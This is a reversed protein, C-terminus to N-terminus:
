SNARATDIVTRRRKHRQEYAALVTRENASLGGVRSVIEDVKMEDYGPWPECGRLKEVRHLVTTRHQHGAEYGEIQHLERQSLGALRATIQGVTLNDYDTLALDEAASFLGVVEGEAGAVGPVRRGTEEARRAQQRAERGARTLLGEGRHAFDDYVYEVHEPWQRRNRWVQGARDIGDRLADWAWDGAGVTVYAAERMQHILIM